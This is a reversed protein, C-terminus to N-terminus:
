LGMWKSTLILNRDKCNIDKYIERKFATVESLAQNQRTSTRTLDRWDPILGSFQSYTFGHIKSKVFQYM